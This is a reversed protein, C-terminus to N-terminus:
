SLKFGELPNKCHPIVTLAWPLRLFHNYSLLFHQFSRYKSCSIRYNLGLNISVLTQAAILDSLTSTYFKMYGRQDNGPPWNDEGPSSMRFTIFRDQIAPTANVEPKIVRISDTQTVSSPTTQGITTRTDTLTVDNNGISYRYDGNIVYVGDSSLPNFQRYSTQFRNFGDADETGVTDYWTSKIGRYVDDLTVRDATLAETQSVGTTISDEDIARLDEELLTPQIDNLEFNIDNTSPDLAISNTTTFIPTVPINHTYSKPVCEFDRLGQGRLTVFDNEGDGTPTVSSSQLLFGNSPKLSDQTFPTPKLGDQAM